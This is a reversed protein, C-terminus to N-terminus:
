DVVVGARRFKNKFKDCWARYSEQSLLSDRKNRYAFILLDFDKPFNKMPILHGNYWQENLVYSLALM